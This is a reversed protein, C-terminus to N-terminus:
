NSKRLPVVGQDDVGMPLAQQRPLERTLNNEPTVFFLDAGRSFEPLTAKVTDMIEVTGERRTPKVTITLVIKGAKQTDNVREVLESM